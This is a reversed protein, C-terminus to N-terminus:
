KYWRELTKDLTYVIVKIWIYAFIFIISTVTTCRLLELLIPLEKWQICEFIFYCVGMIPGITIFTMIFMFITSPFDKFFQIM